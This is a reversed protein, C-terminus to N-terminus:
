YRLLDRREIKLITVRDEHGSEEYRIKGSQRRQLGLEDVAYREAAELDVYIGSYLRLKEREEELLRIEERTGALEANVATLEMRGLLSLVLLM